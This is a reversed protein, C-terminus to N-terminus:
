YSSHLWEWLAHHSKTEGMNCSNTGIPMSKCLLLYICYICYFYIHFIFTYIYILNSNEFEFHLTKNSVAGFINFGCCILISDLVSSFPWLYCFHCLTLILNLIKCLAYWVGHLYLLYPFPIEFSHWIYRQFGFSFSADWDWFFFRKIPWVNWCKLKSVRM